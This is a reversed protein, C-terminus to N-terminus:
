RMRYLFRVLRTTWNSARHSFPFSLSNNPPAPDAKNNQEHNTHPCRTTYFIFEQSTSRFLLSLPPGCAPPPVFFFFFFFFVFGGECGDGNTPASKEWFFMGGEGRSVTAEGGPESAPEDGARSGVSPHGPPCGIFRRALTGSNVSTARRAVRTRQPQISFSDYFRGPTHATATPFFFFGSVRAAQKKVSGAGWGKKWM